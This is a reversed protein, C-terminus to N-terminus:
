TRQYIKWRQEDLYNYYLQAILSHAVQKAPPHLQQAEGLMRTINKWNDDEEVQATTTAMFVLSKLLQPQNNDQRARAYINQLSANAKQPLNSRLHKEVNQWTTDYFGKPQPQAMLTNYILTTTAIVFFVLAHRM